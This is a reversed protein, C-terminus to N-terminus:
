KSRLKNLNFMETIPRSINDSTRSHESIEFVNVLINKKIMQINKQLNIYNMFNSILYM